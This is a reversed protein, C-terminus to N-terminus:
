IEEGIQQLYKGYDTEGYIERLRGFMKKDIFGKRLAIEEICAIKWGQRQEITQVFQSAAMLSDPMGTDLWAIGRGLVQVKLKRMALYANNIDSIELEGRASPNLRKAIDVVHQDYFYIGTVALSSKPRKPKEEISLVKDENDIEVVGYREPDRVRYAFVLGGEQIQAAAMVNQAFRDGYFVNDGLILCVPSGKIFSEGLIFAQAIGDPKPQECYSLSLGLHDGNGLLARIMPLDRPTSIILIDRIGALMLISLPYYIMPKDHIPLLQKSVAFTLPGLRTGAGGALLIGKM